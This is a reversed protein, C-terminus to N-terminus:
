NKIVMKCFFGFNLIWFGPPYQSKKSTWVSASRSILVLDDAYFLCSLPLGNPLIISHTDHANELMSPIEELYLNLLLPFSHM